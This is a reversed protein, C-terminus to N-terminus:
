ATQYRRTVASLREALQHLTGAADQTQSAGAAIQNTTTSVDIMAHGIQEMGAAQAQAGAAIQSAVLATERIAEGIRDLLRGTEGARGRGSEVVRTGEESIAVAASSAERIENLIGQVQTTAQKSQEALNRVEDAVVAFGRGHEGAKAAEITANLALMNSQEALDNVTQTIAGIAESRTALDRIQSAIMAVRAEIEDMGSLLAGVAETGEESYGAARSAQTALEGARQAAQEASARVEEITVTTQTISAAQETTSANHQSVAALIQSATGSLEQTGTQVQGSIEALGEVMLNLNEALTTLEGADTSARATLDGQAVRAAFASIEATAARLEERRREDAGEIMMQIQEAMENFATAIRGVEDMAEINARASLDGEGLEAATGALHGLSRSLRRSVLWAALIGALLAALAAGTLVRVATGHTAEASAVTAAITQSQAAHIAEIDQGFQEFYGDLGNEGETAAFALGDARPADLVRQRVVTEFAILHTRYADLAATLGHEDGDNAAAAGILEDAKAKTEGIANGAETVIAARQDGSAVLSHLTTEAIAGNLATLDAIQEARLGDSGLTQVDGHITSLRGVGVAFVVALLALVLGFAGLLRTRISLHRLDTHRNSRARRPLVNM